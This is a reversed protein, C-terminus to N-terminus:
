IKHSLLAGDGFLENLEDHLSLAMTFLTGSLCSHRLRRLGRGNKVHPFQPDSKSILTFLFNPLKLFGNTSAGQPPVIVVYFEAPVAM